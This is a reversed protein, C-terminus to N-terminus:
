PLTSSQWYWDSECIIKKKEQCFSVKEKKKPGKKKKKKKEKKKGSNRRSKIKGPAVIKGCAFLKWM